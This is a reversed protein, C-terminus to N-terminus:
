IECNISICTFNNLFICSVPWNVFTALRDKEILLDLKTHGEMASPPGGNVENVNRQEQQSENTTLPLNGCNHRNVIFQCQPNLQIHRQEIDDSCNWENIRCHCWNCEVELLNGTAYFGNKALNRFCVNSPVSWLNFSQLRASESNM